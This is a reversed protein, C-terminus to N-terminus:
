KILIAEIRYAIATVEDLKAQLHPLHNDMIKEIAVQNAEIAVQNLAINKDVTALFICFMIVLPILRVTEHWLNIKPTEM